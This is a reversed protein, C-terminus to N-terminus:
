SSALILTGLVGLDHAANYETRKRTDYTDIKDIQSDYLDRGTTLIDLLERQGAIFQQEYNELVKRAEALQHNSSEETRRLIAVQQIASLATNTLDRGTYQLTAKAGELELNAAQIKRKGLGSSSLDLGSSIGLATANSGGNLSAYGKAQLNITPLRSAKATAVGAEAAAVGARASIYDPAIKVASRLKANDKYREAFGIPPASRVSSVPKGVLFSIQSLAISRNAVLQALQDEARAIELRARAVEGNDSIGARARAAAQDSLRRAFAIYDRTRAIKLDIVEVDVFYDAIEMTLDEVAMKLDSVAQVRIHSAANIKSRILGWDFLVQTVTLTLGADSSDFTSTDASLSLSPFYADRAAQVDLTRSAVIQRMASIQGDAEVAQVVASKLTTQASASGVSVLSIVLLQLIVRVTMSRRLVVRYLRKFTFSM